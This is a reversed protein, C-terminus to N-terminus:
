QGDLDLEALVSEIAAIRALLREREDVHQEYLRRNIDAAYAGPDNLWPIKAREPWSSDILLADIEAIRRRAADAERRLSEPHRGRDAAARAQARLAELEAALTARERDGSARELAHVLREIARYLADIGAESGM